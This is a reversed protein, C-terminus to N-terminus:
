IGMLKNAWAETYFWYYDKKPAITKHTSAWIISPLGIVLLYLPGLVKSQKVHGLEHKVVKNLDKYKYCVFIFKGLTVGGRSDKLLIEVDQHPIAGKIDKWACTKYIFGCLNQPLQWVWDLFFNKIKNWM